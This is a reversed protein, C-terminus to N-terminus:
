ATLANDHGIECRRSRRSKKVPDVAETQAAIRQRHASRGREAAPPSCRSGRDAASNPEAGTALYDCSSTAQNSRFHSTSTRTTLYASCRAVPSAFPSRARRTWNPGKSQAVSYGTSGIRKAIRIPGRATSSGVPGTTSGAGKSALICRARLPCRAQPRSHFQVQFEGLCVQILTAGIFRSLDLDQPVGYM